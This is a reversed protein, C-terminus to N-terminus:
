ARLRTRYIVYADELMYRNQHDELWANAAVLLQDICLFANLMTTTELEEGLSHRSLVAGRWIHLLNKWEALSYNSMEQAFPDFVPSAQIRILWCTEVLLELRDFFDMCTGHGQALQRSGDYAVLSYQKWFERLRSVQALDFCHKMAPVPDAQMADDGSFLALRNLHQQENPQRNISM